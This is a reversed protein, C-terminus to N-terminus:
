INNISWNLMEEIKKKEEDSMGKKDNDKKVDSGNVEINENINTINDKIVEKVEVKEIVKEIPEVKKVVKKATSKEETDSSIEKTVIPTYGKSMELLMNKIEKVNNAVENNSDFTVESIVGGRRVYYELADRLLQSKNKANNLARQAEVSLHREDIQIAM